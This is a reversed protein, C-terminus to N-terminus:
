KFNVEGPMGIKLSGDNKVRVKVAYVLNVREDRTQIIKPTFESSSSIWEVKGKLTNLNNEAKDILVEVEQNIKIDALQSGSVFVKLILWDIDAISYLPKGFTVIESAEAFKELVTGKVPNRIYCKRISENVQDIQTSIVAIEGEINQNQTKVSKVQSEIVNINGNLDDLQKQTAAGDKLLNEIRAKDTLLIKKREEMVRIESAINQSKTLIAKQQAYLQLKKLHMDTTDIIGILEGAEHREGERPTFSLLKGNAEASVMVEDTEFNGYADSKDKDSSCAMLSLFFLNIILFKM